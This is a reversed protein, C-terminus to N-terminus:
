RERKVTVLILFETIFEVSCCTEIQILKGNINSSAFKELNGDLRHLFLQM